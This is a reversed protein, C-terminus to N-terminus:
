TENSDGDQGAEMAGRLSLATIECAFDHGFQEIANSRGYRCYSILLELAQADTCYDIPAGYRDDLYAKGSRILRSIKMEQADDQYTIDLENLVTHLIDDVM